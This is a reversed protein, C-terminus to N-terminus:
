HESPLYVTWHKGDTASWIDIKPLPFDTKPIKLTFSPKADVDARGILCASGDPEVTLTWFVMDCLRNDYVTAHNYDHSGLWLAIEDLLWYARAAKAVHRVGPTYIVGPNIAHRYRVDDGTFQKLQEMTLKKM